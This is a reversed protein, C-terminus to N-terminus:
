VNLHTFWQHPDLPTNLLVTSDKSKCFELAEEIKANLNRRHDRLTPATVGDVLIRQTDELLQQITGNFFTRFMNLDVVQLVKTAIHNCQNYIGCAVELREIDVSVKVYLKERLPQFLEKISTEIVKLVAKRQMDNAYALSQQQLIIFHIVSELSMKTGYNKLFQFSSVM